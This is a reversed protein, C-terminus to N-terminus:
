RGNASLPNWFLLSKGGPGGGGSSERRFQVITLFQVHGDLAMVEGGKKSHLRGLGEFDDPYNGRDNFAYPGPNGPGKANEDPEFMLYCLSTWTGGIKIEAQRDFGCASGDMLYSCLKNQRQSRYM